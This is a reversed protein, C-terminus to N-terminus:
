SEKDKKKEPRPSLNTNRACNISQEGDDSVRVYVTYFINDAIPHDISVYKDVFQKILDNNGINACAKKIDKGLFSLQEDRRKWVLDKYTNTEPDYNTAGALAVIDEMSCPSWYLIQKGTSWLTFSIMIIKEKCTRLSDTFGICRTSRGLQDVKELEEFKEVMEIADSPDVKLTNGKRLIKLYKKQTEATLM